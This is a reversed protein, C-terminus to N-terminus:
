DQEENRNMKYYHGMEMRFLFIYILPFLVLNLSMFKFYEMGDIFLTSAVLLMVYAYLSNLLSSLRISQTMEDEVPEKSCVVFLSGLSIGIIVVDNAIWEASCSVQYIEFFVLAGLILAPIFLIWGIIRFSRPLLLNKM